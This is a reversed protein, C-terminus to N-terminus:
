AEEEEAPEDGGPEDGGGSLGLLAFAAEWLKKRSESM